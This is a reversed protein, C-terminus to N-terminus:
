NKVEGDHVLLSVNQIGEVKMLEEIIGNDNGKFRIEFIMDIGNKNVNKSRLRLKWIKCCYGFNEWRADCDGKVILLYASTKLPIM